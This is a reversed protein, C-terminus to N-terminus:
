ENNTMTTEVYLNNKPIKHNTQLLRKKDKTCHQKQKLIREHNTPQQRIKEEM